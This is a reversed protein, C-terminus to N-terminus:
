AETPQALTAALLKVGRLDIKGTGLV